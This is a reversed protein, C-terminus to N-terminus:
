AENKITFFFPDEGREMLRIDRGEKKNKM